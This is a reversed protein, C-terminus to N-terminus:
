LHWWFICWHFETFNCCVFDVYCGSVKECVLLCSISSYNPFFLWMWLLRLLFQLTLLNLPYFCKNWLSLLRLKIRSLWTFISPFFELRLSKWVKTLTHLGLGCVLFWDLVILNFFEVFLIQLCQLFLRCIIKSSLFDVATRLKQLATLRESNRM